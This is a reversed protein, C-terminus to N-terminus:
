KPYRNNKRAAYISMLEGAVLVEDVIENIVRRVEAPEWQGHAIAVAHELLARIVVAEDIDDIHWLTDALVEIARKKDTMGNGEHSGKIFDSL